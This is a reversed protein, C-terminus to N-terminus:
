ATSASRNLDFGRAASLRRGIASGSSLESALAREEASDRSGALANGTAALRVAPRDNIVTYLPSEGTPWHNTPTDWRRWAPGARPARL